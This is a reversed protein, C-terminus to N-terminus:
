HNKRKSLYWKSYKTMLDFDKPPDVRWHNFCVPQYSYDKSGDVVIKPADFYDPSFGRMRQTRSALTHKGEESCDQCLAGVGRLLRAGKIRKLREFMEMPEGNFYYDGGAAVVIKGAKDLIKIVGYIEPNFLHWEEFGFVDFKDKEALVEEASNYWRAPLMNIEEEGGARSFWVPNERFVDRTNERPQYLVRSLNRLSFSKVIKTALDSKGSFMGGHCLIVAM